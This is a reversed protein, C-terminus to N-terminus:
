DRWIFAGGELGRVLNCGDVHLTLWSCHKDRRRTVRPERWGSVNAEMIFKAMNHLVVM